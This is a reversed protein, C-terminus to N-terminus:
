TAPEPSAASVAEDCAVLLRYHEATAVREGYWVDNFTLAASELRDGLGPLEARAESALEGATRGPRPLLAGREELDRAIARLRERVATAYRGAVAEEEARTRHDRATMPAEGGLLPERRRTRLSPSARIIPVAVILLVVLLVAALLWGGPVDLGVEALVGDVWDWFANWLRVVLSEEGQYVPDALEERALRRAEDRDIPLGPRV